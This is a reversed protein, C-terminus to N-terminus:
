FAIRVTNRGDEYAYEASRTRAKALRVSLEDGRELPNYGEGAWRITAECEDGGESCAADFELCFGADPLVPLLVIVCLEEFIQQFKTM